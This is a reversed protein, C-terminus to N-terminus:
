LSFPSLRWRLFLNWRELFPFCMKQVSSIYGRIFPAEKRIVMTLCCLRIDDNHDTRM